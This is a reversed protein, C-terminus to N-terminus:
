RILTCRGTRIGATSVVRLLYQGSSLARGADDRGDWAVRRTGAPGDVTLSRVRRGQVDHITVQVRGAVPAQFRLETLPNFPNPIAQIPEQFRSMPVAVLSGDSFTLVDLRGATAVIVGNGQTALGSVPGPAAWSALPTLSGAPGSYVTVTDGRAAVHFAELRAPRPDALPLGLQNYCWFDPAPESWDLTPAALDTLGVAVERVVDGRRCLVRVGVADPDPVVSV